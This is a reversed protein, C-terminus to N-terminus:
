VVKRYYLGRTKPADWTEGNEYAGLVRLCEEASENTFYLTIFDFGRMENIKDSLVLPVTNYMEWASSAAGANSAIGARRLRFKNGLRDTLYPSAAGGTGAPSNRTIMLPLYGYAIIGRPIKGRVALAQKLGLEFSLTMDCLGMEALMDLALSNAANLGFDGHVEFGLRGAAEIGGINGAVAHSVGLELAKKLALELEAGEGFIVRPLEMYIKERYKGTIEADTKELEAAPLIIVGAKDLLAPSAQSRSQLRVRIRPDRGADDPCAPYAGSLAGFDYPTFGHPRVAGRLAALNELAERRMAGLASAPSM